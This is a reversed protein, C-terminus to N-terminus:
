PQFVNALTANMFAFGYQSSYQAYQTTGTHRSFTLYGSVCQDCEGPKRM